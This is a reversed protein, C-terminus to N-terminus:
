LPLGDSALGTISFNQPSSAFPFNDVTTINGNCDEVVLSGSSPPSTFEITGSVSYTNTTFDCGSPNANLASISCPPNTVINCDTSGTGSTQSLSIDQVVGAYNTILMVYVEGTIAGTITPTEIATPSFSCDVINGNDPNPPSQDGMSNCAAQAVSLTSFPGWIAYDIDQDASLEMIIDGDTAIQFIIGLQTRNLSYATM